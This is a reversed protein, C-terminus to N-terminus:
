PRAGQSADARAEEEVLLESLHRRARHLRVSVTKEAIDLVVAIHAHPLQEWAALRLIEQEQDSLARFGRAVADVADVTDSETTTTLPRRGRLRQNLLRRRGDGRYANSLVRRGVAYLWPRAADGVPVDELRRWAVLFTEAAVDEADSATDARRLAYHLVARYHDTYLDM